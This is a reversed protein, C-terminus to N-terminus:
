HFSKGKGLRVKSYLRVYPPVHMSSLSLFFHLLVRKLNKKWLKSAWTSYVPQQEFNYFHFTGRLLSLRLLLHGINVVPMLGLFNFTTGPRRISLVM